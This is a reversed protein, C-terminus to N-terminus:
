ANARLERVVDEPLVAFATAIAQQVAQMVVEWHEEDDHYRDVLMLVSTTLRLAAQQNGQGETPEPEPADTFQVMPEGAVAEIVDRLDAVKVKSLDVGHDGYLARSALTDRDCMSAVVGRRSLPM